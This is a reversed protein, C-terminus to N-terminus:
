STGAKLEFGLQGPLSALLEGSPEAAIWPKGEAGEKVIFRFDGRKTMVAEEETPSGFTELGLLIM